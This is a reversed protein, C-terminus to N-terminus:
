LEAGNPDNAGSIAGRGDEWILGWQSGYKKVWSKDSARDFLDILGKSRMELLETDSFGRMAIYGGDDFNFGVKGSFGKENLYAQLRIVRDSISRNVGIAESLLDNMNEIEGDNNFDDKRLIAVPNIRIEGIYRNPSPNTPNL